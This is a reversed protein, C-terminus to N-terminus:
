RAPQALGKRPLRPRRTLLGFHILGPVNYTANRRVPSGNPRYAAGGRSSESCKLNAGLVQPGGQPLSPHPLSLARAPRRRQYRM